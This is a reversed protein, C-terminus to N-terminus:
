IYQPLQALSVITQIHESDLYVNVGFGKIGLNRALEMDVTSDGVVFSESLEIDPYKALAQEVMGTNPKICNCGENRGHPCYFVDRVHIGQSDLESLMNTNVMEYQEQTIYGENILYQNTIIIIEYGQNILYKLVPISGDVFVPQHIFTWQQDPYDHILTGDRDFFVVRM